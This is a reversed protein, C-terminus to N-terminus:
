RIIRAFTGDRNHLYVTLGARDALETARAIASRRDACELPEVLDGGSLTWCVSQPVVHLPRFPQQEQERM